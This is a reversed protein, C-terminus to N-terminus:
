TAARYEHEKERREVGKCHTCESNRKLSVTYPELTLTNLRYLKNIFPPAIGTILKIVEIAALCGAVGSTAGLVPFGLPEWDQKQEPYICALCATEGPIVTMLSLEFGYMAAEVMPKGCAVSLRNLDYREPFDYRADIVIDSKEVWPKAKHFEIREAYGEVEVEPNIRKLSEIACSIREEGLKENDMLIQRNLDPLVIVGEHAIILKGVGAAALYVAATGGLGGIGGIFVTSKKLKEQGDKGLLKLQRSYRDFPDQISNLKWNVQM